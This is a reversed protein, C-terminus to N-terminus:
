RTRFPCFVGSKGVFLILVLCFFNLFSGASLLHVPVKVLPRFRRNRRSQSLRPVSAAPFFSALVGMPVADGPRGADLTDGCHVVDALAFFGALIVPSSIAQSVSSSLFLLRLSSTTLRSISPNVSSTTRWRFFSNPSYLIRSKDSASPIEQNQRKKESKKKMKKKM